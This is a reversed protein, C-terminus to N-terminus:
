ESTLRGTGCGENGCLQTRGHVWLARKHDAKGSKGLEIRTLPKMSMQGGM